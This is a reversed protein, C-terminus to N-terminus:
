RDTSELQGDAARPTKDPYLCIDRIPCRWCEPRRAKCIYRGHLILWHHTHTKFRDPVSKELSMEVELPVRGPALGTRNGVRFLHTDVAITPAGFASNMVVNATKRGVGPLAELAERTQPVTSGHREVLAKS